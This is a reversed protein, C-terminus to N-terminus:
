ARQEEEESLFHERVAQGVNYGAMFEDYAEQAEFETADAHMRTTAYRELTMNKAFTDDDGVETVFGHWELVEAGHDIVGDDDPTADNVIKEATELDDAEFDFEYESIRVIELRGRYRPM